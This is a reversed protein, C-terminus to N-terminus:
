ISDVHIIEELLTRFAVVQEGYRERTKQRLATGFNSQYLNYNEIKMFLYQIAYNVGDELNYTEDPMIRFMRYETFLGTNMVEPIHVQRMWKLWESEIAAPLNCTVNYVYM